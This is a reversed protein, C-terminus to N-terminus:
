YFPVFPQTCQIPVESMRCSCELDSSNNFFSTAGAMKKRSTTKFVKPVPELFLNQVKRLVSNSFALFHLTYMMGELTEEKIPLHSRTMRDDPVSGRETPEAKGQPSRDPVTGLLGVGVFILILILLNQLVESGRHMTNTLIWSIKYPVPM